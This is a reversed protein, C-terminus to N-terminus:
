KNKNPKLEKLIANVPRHCLCIVCPTKWSKTYLNVCHTCGSPSKTVRYIKGAITVLQGPKWTKTTTQSTIFDRERQYFSKTQNKSNTCM